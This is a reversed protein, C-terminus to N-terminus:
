SQNPMAMEKLKSRTIDRVTCLLAPKERWTIISYSVDVWIERGNKRIGMSEINGSPIGKDYSDGLERFLAQYNEHVLEVPNMSTLEDMSFGTMSAFSPNAFIVKEDQFIIVGDAVNETLTRYRHESAELREKAEKLDHIDVAIECRVM